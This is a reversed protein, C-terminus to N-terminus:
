ATLLARLEADHERPASVSFFVAFALAAQEVLMELGDITRLGRRRAEVLLRTELPVYVMDFVTGGETMHSLDFSGTPQGVMGLPSANVVLDAMLPADLPLVEGEVHLERLVKEAREPSRAVVSVSAFGMRRIAFLAARAAGGAGIIIARGGKAEFGTRHSNAGDLARWIGEVDTNRGHLRGDQDRRVTNVAGVTTAERTTTDLQFVTKEKHPITVNCGQWKADERRRAFYDALEGPRVHCARYEADIGLKGLWYNHIAPSKSQAIPDGIVEAYPRSM